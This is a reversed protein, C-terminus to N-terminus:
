RPTPRGGTQRTQIELLRALRRGVADAWVQCGLPSFHGDGLKGNFLPSPTTPEGAALRRIRERDEAEIFDEMPDYYTPGDDGLIDPIRGPYHATKRPGEVHNVWPAPVALCPIDRARCFAAIKGIWHRNEEWDARGDLVEFLDGFDNAFLSLIVFQPRFRDAYELLTFYEQEPSYGLHGTNLVEVSTKFRDALVRELCAPPTQDDGVFLGQMYSDGLVIGRLSADLDPEGGRVGWSNTNQVSERVVVAGAAEALERLAPTDPIPFYALVGGKSKLNRVWISRTNPRFRYSRGTDDAEFVTAPLLLAKDFNGWRLLAHDPDLGAEDLLRKLKPDYQDYASRLKGRAQDMDFLRRRRWDADIWDRGAVDGTLTAVGRHLKAFTWSAAYRGTSTGVLLGALLCATLGAIVLKFRRSLREGREVFRFTRQRYRDRRRRFPALRRHSM